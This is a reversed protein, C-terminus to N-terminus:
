YRSHAYIAIGRVAMEIAQQVSEANDGSRAGITAFSIMEGSPHRWIVTDGLCDVANEITISHPRSKSTSLTAGASTHGLRALVKSRGSGTRTRRLRLPWSASLNKHERLDIM